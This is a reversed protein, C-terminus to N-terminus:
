HFSARCASEAVRGLLLASTDAGKYALPILPLVFPLTLQIRPDIRAAALYIPIGATIAGTFSDGLIGKTIAKITQCAIAEKKSQGSEIAIRIDDALAKGSLAADVVTSITNLKSKYSASGELLDLCEIAASSPISLSTSTEASSLVSLLSSTTLNASNSTSSFDFGFVPTPRLTQRHDNIVGPIGYKEVNVGPLKLNVGLSIAQPERMHEGLVPMRLSM